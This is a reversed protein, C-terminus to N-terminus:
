PAESVQIFGEATRFAFAAFNAIIDDVESTDTELNLRFSFVDYVEVDNGGGPNYDITFLTQFTKYQPSQGVVTVEELTQTKSSTDGQGKYYCLLQLDVTDTVLGGTNDVNVEFVIGMRLDSAADWNPCVRAGFYLYETDINLRYGGISNADPATWTAGSGGAAVELMDIYSCYWWKSTVGEFDGGATIKFQDTLVDAGDRTSLYLETGRESSSWNADAKAYIRAGNDFSNDDRGDFNITGLVAGQDVPQPSAETNDAKRLTVTPTTTEDDHYSSVNVTADAADRFFDTDSGFKSDGSGQAAFFSYNTSSGHDLDAYYGYQTGGTTSVHDTVYSHYANDTDHTLLSSSTGYLMQTNADSTGMMLNYVGIGSSDGEGVDGGTVLLTNRVGSASSSGGSVTFFSNVGYASAWDGSVTGTNYTGQVNALWYDTSDYDAAVTINNQIGFVERDGTDLTGTGTNLTQVIGYIDDGDTDASVTQTIGEQADTNLTNSVALATAAGSNIVVKGEVPTADGVGFNGALYSDGGASYIAYNLTSGATPQELYLGYLNTPSGATTNEFYYGFADVVTGATEQVQARVAYADDIQGGAVAQNIQARLGTAKTATGQDNRTYASLGILNDVTGGANNWAIIKNWLAYVQGSGEHNAQLYAGYVMGPSSINYTNGSKINAEAWIGFHTADSAASPNVYFDTEQGYGFGSTITSTENLALIKASSIAADAGIAAHGNIDLNGTLGLQGTKTLELVTVGDALFNVLKNGAGTYDIKFADAANGSYTQRYYGSNLIPAGRITELWREVTIIGARYTRSQAFASVALFLSLLVTIALTSRKM